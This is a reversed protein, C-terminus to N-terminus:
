LCVLDSSLIVAQENDSKNVKRSPVSDPRLRFGFDVGHFNCAM